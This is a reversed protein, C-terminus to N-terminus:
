LGAKKNCEQITRIAEKISDNEEKAYIIVEGDVADKKRGVRGAIQVITRSDYIRNDGCFILVQINRITVGRELISTTVLYQYIGLKFREIKEKRDESKSSVFSGNKYFLTLFRALEKGIEITPVFILVPKKNDIFIKLKRLIQFRPFVSEKIYKPVPMKHGHYRKMLKFVTGNDHEVNSMDEDTATASMLIYNGRLSKRFFNNLMENGKFPFADIEDMILLDFYSEYRYLQHTTLIIIDGNLIQSHEGYVLCIKSNPFAEQFREKMERVIDVRPISFGVHLNNKLCYEISKYILETKGSGTVAYVIANKKKKFNELLGLSIEEQEPSLSYDLNLVGEHVVFNRDALKGNFSICKRCYKV